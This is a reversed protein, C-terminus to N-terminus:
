PKKDGNSDTEYVCDRDLLKGYEQRSGFMECLTQARSVNGSRLHAVVLAHVTEPSQESEIALELWHRSRAWNEQRYYAMGIMEFERQALEGMPVQSLSEVVKPWNEAAYADRATEKPTRPESRPAADPPPPPATDTVLREIVVDEAPTGPQEDEPLPTSPLEELQIERDVREKLNAVPKSVQHEFAEGCSLAEASYMREWRIMLEQARQRVVKANDSEPALNAYCEYFNIALWPQRLHRDYLVGLNIYPRPDRPDMQQAVMLYSEADFPREAYMLATGLNHYVPQKEEEFYLLYQYMQVASVYNSTRVYLDALEKAVEPGAGLRLARNYYLEASRFDGGDLACRAARHFTEADEFGKDFAREWSELAMPCNGDQLYRDGMRQPSYCAAM